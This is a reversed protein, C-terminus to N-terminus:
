LFWRTTGIRGLMVSASWRSGLQALRGLLGAVLDSYLITVPMSAPLFSRWSHSSFWFVQKTLYVMDTFTSDRHLTLLVPRPLGDTARKLERPGVLTCLADHTGLEAFLGRDPAHEGKGFIGASAQDFLLWPHDQKVHLFAFTVEFGEISAVCDKVAQVETDRLPKFAHVVVRVSDGRIWNMEARVRELTAKLSETLTAQYKEFPVAQSLNSLLYGGDGRFVSTIGVLRERRSFRSQGISASGLGVVIEHAISTDSKILWPVGGLKAYTALAFNSLTYVLQKPPMDFTEVTVAQTPIQTSLFAAKAALYPNLKPLTYRSDQESQVIALSWPSNSNARARIAKTSADLYAEASFDSAEFFTFKIDQLGYLRLMGQAFPQYGQEAALGEKLKQLFVETQGRRAKDCIVCIEPRSPTFVSRSYPGYKQLGAANRADAKLSAADFVYTAPPVTRFRPFPERRQDLLEGVSFLLGPQLEIPGESRLWNSVEIIHQQKQAGRSHDQVLKTYKQILRGPRQRLLSDTLHRVASPSPELYLRDLEIREPVDNYREGLVAFAGDIHDIRGAIRRRPVFRSDKSAVETEAILGQPDLGLEVLRSLPAPLRLEVESDWALGLRPLAGPLALVRPSVLLRTRAQIWEGFAESDLALRRGVFSLPRFGTALRKKAAFFSVLQQEVLARLLHLDDIKAQMAAGIDAVGARMPLAYILDNRRQFAYQGLFRNRLEPLHDRDRYPLTQLEIASGDINLPTFNLRLDTM